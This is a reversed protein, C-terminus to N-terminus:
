VMHSLLDTVFSGILTASAVVCPPFMAAQFGNLREQETGSHSGTQRLLTLINDSTLVLIDDCCPPPSFAIQNVCCSMNITHAAMPPPVVQHRLSTLLLKAVFLECLYKTIVAECTM